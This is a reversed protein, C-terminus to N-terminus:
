EKNKNEQDKKILYEIYKSKNVNKEECIKTLIDDLEINITISLSKKRNEIKPRGM